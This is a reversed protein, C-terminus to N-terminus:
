SGAGTSTVVSTVALNDYHGTTMREDDITSNLTIQTPTTGYARFQGMLYDRAADACSVGKDYHRKALVSDMETTSRSVIALGVVGLILIIVIALILASGRHPPRIQKLPPLM